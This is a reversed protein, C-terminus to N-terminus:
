TRGVAVEITGIHDSDYNELSKGIITGPMAQGKASIAVGAINSTVMLDGKEIKGVVRCAVRGQLAVCVKHGPCESNMTYAANESVVGAVRHDNAKSALTVEKEGGFILVTGVEYEQDGEYYEALDAYTAEFRSGSSLSWRGTVTGTTTTAGTTLTRSQLTGSSVNITGTGMTLNAGGSLTLGGSLTFTGTLTGATAASGTSFGTGTILGSGTITTGTIATGSIAGSSSVSSVTIAGMIVPANSSGNQTRFQHSNNDYFTVKDNATSGDGIQIGVQGNFGRYQFVGGTGSTDFTVLEKSDLLIRGRAGGRPRLNISNASFGGTSDRQVLKNDDTSGTYASSMEIIQYDTDGTFSAGSRRLFGTGVSYQNKKIAGGDSVVTTFTVASVNSTTIGSNGLVTKTAIQAIKGLVIGNNKVNIWGNTADFENSNFSALGRDSQAIGTANARTTAANMALKSQAIAANNNVDTNIITGPNIQIDLKDNSDRTLTVDGVFSTPDLQSLLTNPSTRSFIVDGTVVANEASNGVGTFTLLHASGPATVTTEQFNDFTLSRLNVADQPNTADALGFAKFDGFNMNGKMPLLGSLPMFGGISIPILNEPEVATGAHRLGLRREIYIRTANETPVTDTANDSFSSDTSFESVSVGRKFRLGDLNSLAIAASFTVTGTGQDVRFFPGVNFNGFQDTTSYFVRGVNREVTENADNRPNVPPGFIENPYNTDAYSGTGIDLLDHGTVRTLSIRITLTGRADKAVASKLTPSANYFTVGDILDRDLTMLAYAQETIAEGQYGVITYEEGIWVLKSGIIRSQDVPGVPVVAFTADGARGITLGVTQTGSQSGFTSLSGGGVTDKVTFTNANLVSEVFYMRNTALGGPLAGTTEFKIVDDVSFGHNTLTIVAPEDITITCVSGSTVFPQVPWVTLDIYDYNERLTTLALRSVIYSQTGSQTGSTAVPVGRRATSIKFSNPGLGDPLVFYVTTIDLGTPLDGTTEFSIQYDPRLGHNNRFFTTSNSINITVEKPGTPDVYNDFQLIRYVIDAEELLLGTSPRTAVDVVDGTLIITSNQRITLKTGDAVSAALGEVGFTVGGSGGLDLRSVGPPLDRSEVGTIPYTFVFGTGHDIELESNPLPDYTYNTVFITLGGQVNAFAGSPFFCEAGQSFDFYTTVPTPVELPDAGEAVLAFVGHASSSSVSRIQGGNLSYFSTYCYYSFMSVAECLGGNTTVIGYGMDNIQTYDNGLMSRNGPMLVEFKNANENIFDIVADEINSKESILNNAATVRDADYNFAGINPLIESPAAGVGSTLVDVTIQIFSEIQEAIVLSTPTGSIRSIGSYLPSPDLDQVVQKTVLKIHNIVAIYSSVESPDLQLEILDGVGDFYRLAEDRSQSNGGYTIDYAVAELLREFNSSYLDFDFTFSSSFPATSGAVQADIFEFAQEKIFDINALLLLKANENNTNIGPPSPLILPDLFIAGNRLIDEIERDSETVTLQADSSVEVLDLALEHAFNIASITLDLQEEIVRSASARRYLLGAKRYNYNSGFIIDYFLGDIILGVDRRCIEENYEFLKFPWPTGEDLVFSATSGETNFVFDRVYNIRYVTDRVIFSAPLQPFRKLDSVLLFSNDEVTGTGIGPGTSLFVTGPTNSLAGILTFDTDGVTKITYSRNTLIQDVNIEAKGLLRFELNGTFGDIFMGGAFRQTGISKSFSSCEQAYPSKALIQGTPDLVMMFGGHGQGSLAQLRVADNCLFMDMERNDKPFNILNSDSIVDVVADFLEGLAGGQNVVFGGSDYEEFNLGDVSDTLGADTYLAFNTSNIIEVFFINGNLETMGSVNDIIVKEGNSLNHNTNTTIGVPNTNSASAINVSVGGSGSEAIFAGDIVQRVQNQFLESVEINRIVLQALVGVRRIAAVTQALQTTISIALNSLGTADGYYKLAASVTRDSGGYKLDFIMSDLFLGIDREFLSENYQFSPDFPSVSNFKQDAIWAIVEKQIFQRNLFLLQASARYSGKNNILPYVPEATNELYHHGFIRDTVQLGDIETDRRFFSFAWPSSSIGPKPRVIVRRFEDGVISVNQPIKLPLNEFYIGSEVLITIQTFKSIDGYSIVEGEIFNGFQIDVDFIENGDSDLSGDHALIQALAGSTEGRLLLGERIDRTRIAAATQTTVDGTFDTRFGETKILFRPLNVIVNPLSTFGGGSDTITISEISGGIVSATGFAGSGGGGIIRVSVLGYNAGGTLVQVNNVKYTLDVTTIALGGGLGGLQSDTTTTIDENGPLSTYVGSSLQRVAAVGGTETISLVEYRAPESFTGGVITLTDGPRYNVGVNRIRITDVSMLVQGSFGSGSIPSEVIGELTCTKSGNDYTLIKKYPGLEIPADLIIEEARKLAGELTRYAYSLARGQLEESVGLRDDEGSTAVYLNIISGFGSNDVYRKTAAILGNFREDDDPEPDRSLILPGSMTGFAPNSQDTAPDIANVGARSIKTDAYSKNVAEDGTIPTILDQIRYQVGGSTASLNGGLQPAPDGSIASFEASIAIENPNTTFDIQVGSGPILQKYALGTETSNVTIISNEFGEYDGPTDDLGRFTLRDGLGLSSYLERFNDNVKRFSDRISDGTGDNGVAGIDIVKRAM